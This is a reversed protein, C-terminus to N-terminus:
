RFGSTPLAATATAEADIAVTGVLFFSSDPALIL